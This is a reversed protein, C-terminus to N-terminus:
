ETSALYVGRSRPHDGPRKQPARKRKTFGARAPIIGAGAGVAVMVWPLGRALPSSGGTSAAARMCMSYVGRSRPHDTRGYEPDLEWLTFGARAPIIRLRSLPHAVHERLGRALPSSGGLSRGRAARSRYVGRSRPHDPGCVLAHVIPRTFGARAPIIRGFEDRAPGHGRLGRALPSSGAAPATLEARM